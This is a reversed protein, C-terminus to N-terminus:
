ITNKTYVMRVERHDIEDLVGAIDIINIVLNNGNKILYLVGGEPNTETEGVLYGQNNLSTKYSEFIESKERNTELVVISVIVGRDPYSMEYSETIELPEVPVDTPFNSPIRDKGIQSELDINTIAVNEITDPKVYFKKYWVSGGAIIILLVILLVVLNKYRQM